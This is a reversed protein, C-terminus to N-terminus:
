GDRRGDDAQRAREAAQEARAEILRQCSEPDIERGYVGRVFELRGDNCWQRVRAPSVGILYAAQQVTLM